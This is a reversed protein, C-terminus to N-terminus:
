KKLYSPWHFEKQATMQAYGNEGQKRAKDAQKVAEAFEGEKASAKAAEIIDGTDRWEGGVSAAKQRAADADAIAKDAAAADPAKTEATACGSLSGILGVVLVADKLFKMMQM